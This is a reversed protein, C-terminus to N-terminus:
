NAFDRQTRIFYWHFHLGFTVWSINAKNRWKSYDVFEDLCAISPDFTNLYFTYNLFGGFGLNEEVMFTYSFHPQIFVTNFQKKPHVSDYLCVVNTYLNSSYGARLEICGFRSFKSDTETPMFYGLTFNTNYTRLFFNYLQSVNGIRFQFNNSTQFLAYNFGIGSYFKRHIRINFQGGAQFEGTFTNRFAQSSIPSPIGGEGKFSFRSLQNKDQAFSVISFCWICLITAFYKKM